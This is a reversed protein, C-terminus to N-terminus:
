EFKWGFVDKMFKVSKEADNSAIEWYVVPNKQM